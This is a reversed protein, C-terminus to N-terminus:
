LLWYLLLSATGELFAVHQRQGRLLAALLLLSATFCDTFCYRLLLAPLFLAALCDTFCYRRQVKWFHLKSGRLECMVLHKRTVEKGGSGGAFAGKREPEAEEVRKVLM